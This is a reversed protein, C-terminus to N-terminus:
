GRQGPTPPDIAGRHRVLEAVVEAALLPVPTRRLAAVLDHGTVAVQDAVAHDPLRPLPRAAQGESALAAAAALLRAASRGVEARTAFPPAPQAMRADSLARLRRVLREVEAALQDVADAPV